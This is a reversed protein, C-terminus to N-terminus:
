FNFFINRARLILYKGKQRTDFFVHMFALVIVDYNSHRCFHSLDKEYYQKDKKLNYVANQGWYAVLKHKRGTTAFFLFFRM